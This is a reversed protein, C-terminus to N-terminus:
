MAITRLTRARMPANMRVDGHLETMVNVYRGILVGLTAWPTCDVVALM